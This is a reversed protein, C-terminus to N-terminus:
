KEQPHLPCENQLPTVPCGSHHVTKHIPKRQAAKVQAPTATVILTEHLVPLVQVPPPPPLNVTVSVPSATPPAPPAEAQVVPQPVVIALCDDLTLHADKAAKTNCLIKAAATPNSLVNFAAAVALAQCNKDAHSGGFAIAAAPSSAGATISGQCNSALIPPAYAGPTSRQANSVNTTNNSNAGAGAASSNAATTQSSTQQQKQSQSQSLTNTNALTNTIPGINSSGGKGGAGGAGGSASSSSNSGSNASASSTSSSSTPTTTPATPPAQCQFTLGNDVVVQGNGDGVGNGVTGTPVQIRIQGPTTCNWAFAPLSFMVLVFLFQAIKKM